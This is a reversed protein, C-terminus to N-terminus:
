QFNGKKKRDRKDNINIYKVLHYKTMFWLNNLRQSM